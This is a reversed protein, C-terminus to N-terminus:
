IEVRIFWGDSADKKFAEKNVLALAVEHSFCCGVVKFSSLIDKMWQPQKDPRDKSWTQKVKNAKSSIVWNGDDSFAEGNFGRTSREIFQDKYTLCHEHDNYKNHAM